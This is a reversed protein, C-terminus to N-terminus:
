RKRAVGCWATVQDPGVAGPEPRWQQPQVVGPDLLDLGDFFRTVAARDRMTAGPRSMRENVRKTMEAMQETRIDSAPHALVLYSGAPVARVLSAVIGHPDDSDPILHLIILLMIAVPAAFDLTKAAARLIAATDRLDADLYATVGERSSSLLAQAHSLVIPDNDVYVVRARPDAAQAVEHTNGAAPLGTGIDLFQRIGGETVLYRVARTLFARNARVDAVIGPNAAIAREAAERDAAFNDKGGLWYNYVRAPHAHATDLAPVKNEADNEADKGPM